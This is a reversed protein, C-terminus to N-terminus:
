QNSFSVSLESEESLHVVFSIGVCLWWMTRELLWNTAWPLFDIEKGGPPTSRLETKSDQSHTVVRAPSAFPKYWYDVQLGSETCEPWNVQTDLDCGTTASVPVAHGEQCLQIYLVCHLRDHQLLEALDDKSLTCEVPVDGKIHLQTVSSRLINGEYGLPFTFPAAAHGHLHIDVCDSHEDLLSANTAVPQWSLAFRDRAATRSLM